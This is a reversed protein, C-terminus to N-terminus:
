CIGDCDPGQTGPPARRLGGHPVALCSSLGQFLVRYRAGPQTVRCVTGPTTDDGVFVVDGPQYTSAAVAAAVLAAPGPDEPPTASAAAAAAGTSRRTRKAATSRTTAM